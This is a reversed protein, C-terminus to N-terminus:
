GTPAEFYIEDQRQREVLAVSPSIPSRSDRANGFCANRSL